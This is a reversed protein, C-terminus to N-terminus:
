YRDNIEPFGVPIGRTIECCCERLLKEETVEHTLQGEVASAFLERTDM